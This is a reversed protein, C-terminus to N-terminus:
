RLLLGDAGSSGWEIWQLKQGDTRLPICSEAGHGQVSHGEKATCSGTGGAGNAVQGGLADVALTRAPPQRRPSGVAALLDVAEVLRQGFRQIGVVNNEGHM